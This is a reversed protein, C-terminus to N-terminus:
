APAAAALQDLRGWAAEEREAIEGLPAVAETILAAPDGAASAARFGEAVIQWRDGIQRFDEGVEALRPECVIAAAEGLFRSYMYRFIGGGTGGTADVFIFANFCAGRVDEVSLKNPWDLVAGRAKRIGKVGLNAIPPRLMQNASNRIAQWIEGPEPQHFGSFDFDFWAHQPPFPKYTSGRANALDALAVPHPTEDRDAVLVARAEPDYGVVAIVHGGFHYEAPFNFYPLFGMDVQLMAPEGASLLRLLAEEAKRASGTRQVRVEVGTRRGATAELGEEGPRGVNARGGIFPLTGQMHWYIFGVGEGLGLLLEESLPCGHFVYLRRLSGTVCHHTPFPEIGQLPALTM